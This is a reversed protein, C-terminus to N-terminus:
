NQIKQIFENYEEEEISEINQKIKYSIDFDYIDKRKQFDELNIEGIIQSKNLKEVINFISSKSKSEGNINIKNGSYKIKEFLVNNDIVHSMLYLNVSIFKKNYRKDLRTLSRLKGETEQQKKRIENLKENVNTTNKQSNELDSITYNFYFVIPLIIISVILFISLCIKITKPNNYIKKNLSLDIKV